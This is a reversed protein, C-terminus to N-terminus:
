IERNTLTLAKKSESTSASCNRWVDPQSFIEALTHTGDILVGPEPM